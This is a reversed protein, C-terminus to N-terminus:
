YMYEAKYFDWGTWDEYLKLFEEETLYERVTYKGDDNQKLEEETKPRERLCYVGSGGVGYTDPYHERYYEREGEFTEEEELNEPFRYRVLTDLYERNWKLDFTCRRFVSTAPGGSVGWEYVLDGGATIFLFEMGDNVDIYVMEAMGDQYAFIVSIEIKRSDAYDPLEEVVWGGVLEPMGDGNVDMRLWEEADMGWLYQEEISKVDSWDGQEIQDFIRNCDAFVEKDKIPDYQKLACLAISLTGDTMDNKWDAYYRHGTTKEIGGIEGKLIGAGDSGVGTLEVTINSFLVQGGDAGNGTKEYYASCLMEQAQEADFIEQVSNLMPGDNGTFSMSQVKEFGDDGAIKTYLIGHEEDVLFDKVPYLQLEEQPTRIYLVYQNYPFTEPVMLWYLYEAYIQIDDADYVCDCHRLEYFYEAEYGQYTVHFGGEPEKEEERAAKAAEEAEQVAAKGELEATHVADFATMERMAMGSVFAESAAINVAALSAAEAQCAAWVTVALVIGAEIGRRKRNM